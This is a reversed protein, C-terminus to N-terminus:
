RVRFTRSVIASSTGVTVRARVRYRGTPLARRLRLRWTTTGTATLKIPRSCARTAGLRGTSSLPRCGGRTRLQDVSVQVRRSGVGRCPGEFTATGRLLARGASLNLGSSFKIAPRAACTLLSLDIADAMAQRGAPGPHLHDGSDYEPRLQTPAAPDALARDFDVLGDYGRYARIWRNLEQRAPEKDASWSGLPPDTDARPTVTAGIVKIGRAHARNVLQELGETIKSVATGAGLDNTGEFLIIHTVGARNLADRDFRQVAPVGTWAGLTTVVTNGSIGTNSVARSYQDAPKDLLRVALRSPWSQDKRESFANSVYAGDTISDGFAVVTGSETPAFVDVGDLWPWHRYGQVFADGAVDAAHDGSGAPTVTSGTLALVHLTPTPPSSMVYISVALNQLAKVPLSIADSPVDKGAAVEVSEKGGFTVTRLTGPEVGSGTSQIAVTVRGVRLPGEGLTNSLRVRVSQGGVSTQITERLTQEHAQLDPFTVRFYTQILSGITDKADVTSMGSGWTQQWGTTEAAQTPTTACAATTTLALALLRRM